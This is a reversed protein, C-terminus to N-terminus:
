EPERDGKKAEEEGIEKRIAEGVLAYEVAESLTKPLRYGISEAFGRSFGPLYIRFGCWSCLGIAVELSALGRHFTLASGGKSKVDRFTDQLALPQLYKPQDFPFDAPAESSNPLKSGCQCVGPHQKKFATYRYDKYSGVAACDICIPLYQGIQLCMCRSDEHKRIEYDKRLYKTPPMITELITCNVRMRDEAAPNYYVYGALTFLDLRYPIDLYDDNQAKKILQYIKLLALRKWVKGGVLQNMKHEGFLPMNEELHTKYGGFICDSCALRLRDRPLRFLEELGQRTSCMGERCRVCHIIDGFCEHHGIGASACELPPTKLNLMLWYESDYAHGLIVHIDRCVLLLSGLDQPHLYSVLSAVIPYRGLIDMLNAKPVARQVRTVTTERPLEDFDPVDIDMPSPSRQDHESTEDLDPMDIDMASPSRQGHESPQNFVYGLSDGAWSWQAPQSPPGMQVNSTNM